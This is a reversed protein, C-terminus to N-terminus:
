AQAGGHGGPLAGPLRVVLIQADTFCVDPFQQLAHVAELFEMRVEHVVPQALGASQLRVRASRAQACPQPPLTVFAAESRNQRRLQGFTRVGDEVQAHAAPPEAGRAVQVRSAPGIKQEAVHPGNPSGDPNAAVVLGPAPVVRVREGDLALVPKLPSRNMHADIEEGFGARRDVSGAVCDDMAQAVVIRPEIVPRGDNQAVLRTPQARPVGEVAVQRPVRQRSEAVSLPDRGARLDAPDSRIRLVAVPGRM